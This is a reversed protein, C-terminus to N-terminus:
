PSIGRRRPKHGQHRRIAAAEESLAPQRQRARALLDQMQRRGAAESAPIAQLAPPACEILRRVAVVAQDLAASRDRGVAVALQAEAGEVALAADLATLQARARRERERWGSADAGGTERASVVAEIGRVADRWSRQQGALDARDGGYRRRAAAIAADAAAELDFLPQAWAQALRLVLDNAKQTRAQRVAAADALVTLDRSRGQAFDRAETADAILEGAARLADVLRAAALAVAQWAEALARWWRIQAPLDAGSPAAAEHAQELVQAEAAAARYAQAAGAASVQRHAEAQQTEFAEAPLALRQREAIVVAATEVVAQWAAIRTAWPDAEDGRAPSRMAQRARTSAVKHAAELRQLAQLRQAAIETETAFDAAVAGDQSRSMQRVLVAEDAALDRSVFLRLAERHRTLAVYATSASWAFAHDYLAYVQTQTKGQGRYVTGAYGHDWDRFVRPDFTLREGADTAVVIRSKSATEITGVVGNFIGAKRDTARFQIRHGAAALREGRSTQYSQGEAIVGQEVLHARARANLADVSVNTSAYIFQSVGPQAEAAWREILGDMSAALTDSWQVRGQAAYARYGTGMDGAAFAESASRQWDADQRRVRTLEASGIREAIRDFLGGRDISQLQRSDGVLLVRAGAAEAEGLLQDLINTSVMAAEDVVVVTRATWTARGRDLDILTMHATKAVRFGDRKLDRAVTNTPAVAVVQHGSQEHAARIAGLTHSKGTGARGEIVALRGIRRGDGAERGLAAHQEASLGGGAAEVHEWKAARGLRSALREARALVAREQVLVARTTWRGTSRGSEPDCLAVSSRHALAAQVAADIAAGKLGNRRVVRRMDLVTWTSQREAMAALVRAPKRMAKAADAKAAKSAAKNRSEPHRGKGVHTDQVVQKPDVAAAIGHARFYGSQCREWAEVLEGRDHAAVRAAQGGIVAPAIERAKLGFGSVGLRRTSVIAHVHPNHADEHLAWQVAVGAAGFRSKLFGRTLEISQEATLERPVALVVHWAVQGGIKVRREGTKRDTTMESDLAAAWLAEPDRLADPAADPLLLETHAVDDAHGTFDYSTGTVRDELAGRTIYAALGAASSGAAAHIVTQHAYCIAM